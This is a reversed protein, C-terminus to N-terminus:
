PSSAGEPADDGKMAALAAFFEQLKAPDDTALDKLISARVSATLLGDSGIRRRLEGLAVEAASEPRKTEPRSM